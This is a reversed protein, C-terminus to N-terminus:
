FEAKPMIQRPELSQVKDLRPFYNTHVVPENTVRLMFSDRKERSNHELVSITKKKKKNVKTSKSRYSKFREHASMATKSNLSDYLRSAESIM